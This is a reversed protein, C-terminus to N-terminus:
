TLWAPIEKPAPPMQPLGHDTLWAEQMAKVERFNSKGLDDRVLHRKTIETLEHMAIRNVGEIVDGPMMWHKGAATAVRYFNVVADMALGLPVDSLAEGWSVATSENVERNDFSAIKTLVIAAQAPTM